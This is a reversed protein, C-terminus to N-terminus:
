DLGIFYDWWFPGSSGKGPRLGSQHIIDLGENLTFSTRLKKVFLGLWIRRLDSILVIGQEKTVRQIENFMAVPDEVIHVMFTNIVLDFSQDDFDMKQVDGKQFTISDQVGAGSALSGALNLLPEALDTAIVESEPFRKAIEISVVGFGCGADLIKGGKFGSKTLIDALRFAVRTINTRNRKYYGEAWEPDSFVRPHFLEIRKM